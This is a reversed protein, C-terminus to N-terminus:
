NEDNDEKVESEEKIPAEKKLGELEKGIERLRISVYSFYNETSIQKSILESFILQFATTLGSDQIYADFKDAQEKRQQQVEQEAKSTVNIKAPVKGGKKM